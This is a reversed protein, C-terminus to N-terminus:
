CFYCYIRRRWLSWCTSTLIKMLVNSVSLLVKDGCLHGYTDNVAKFFDIDIMMITFTIGQNNYIEIMNDLISDIYHRNYLNTLGDRISKEYIVQNEKKLMKVKNIQYSYNITIAYTELLVFIFMGVQFIYRSVYLFGNNILIDNGASIILVTFAILSVMSNKEREKVKKILFILIDIAIVIVILESLFSLKDYFMNNTTLCISGFIISAISSITITRKPINSFIEKLYFVYVPIWLYYTLAATKSLVEFPMNPFFHVIIRENLFLCRLQIFLCLISFLLYYKKNKMQKYLSLFLLEIVLLGGIIIFDIGLDFISENIIKDKLGFEMSKIQPIMETYNSAQIVIEIHGDKSTFYSYIPLYIAKEDEYSTGVKGVQEQLVGNVWVKSASLLSRIRLGYVIGEPAEIKLRLTMYGMHKGSLQTKLKGPITLYKSTNRYELDKPTLFENDYVEWQGDLKLIGNESFNYDNLYMVGNIAQIDRTTDRHFSSYIGAVLAVLIMINLLKKM